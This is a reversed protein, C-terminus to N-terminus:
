SLHRVVLNRLRAYVTPAKSALLRQARRTLSRIERESYLSRFTMKHYHFIVLDGVFCLDFGAAQARQCYDDDDGLGVGFQENLLGVKEIVDRRIMVCFFVLMMPRPLVTPKMYPMSASLTGNLNSRPGALGVSGTLSAQLRELWDPVVETDNNLLVVYPATSASLGQNVAKVFGANASNRILLHPHKDLSEQISDFDPSANDVVILRYNSSYLGISTLCNLVMQRSQETVYNPIVIDYKLEPLTAAQSQKQDKLLLEM